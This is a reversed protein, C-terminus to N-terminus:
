PSVDHGAFDIRGDPLKRWAVVAFPAKALDGRGDFALDGLVTRLPTGGHLFAAVRAPEVSRAGEIGRRVVEVAAYAQAAFMEAEPGRSAKAAGRPEPLRPPAPALTMLTGEAGPGAAQPFDKDLLGDSGIVTAGLGAERMARILGAAPASLGGFYVAEIGLARLKAVLAATERDDRSVGEFLREQGGRARLTRAAEDALARGFSTRDHVIAVPKTGFREALLAGGLAGQQADSGALRFLLAAGRRTLPPWTAGPTVAVIGAEEYVPSATAAAGSTLHGVVFRVGGEALRRAAAAAQKPDAADDQVVLQLRRGAVGGARNIDAVAQEAGFRAGQGFGADPGSLPVALGIKLPEAAGAPGALALAILVPWASRKTMPM